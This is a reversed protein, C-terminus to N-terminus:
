PDEGSGRECRRAAFTRREITAHLTLFYGSHGVAEQAVKAVARPGQSPVDEEGDDRHERETKAHADDGRQEGDDIRDQQFRDGDILIAHDADPLVVDLSSHISV